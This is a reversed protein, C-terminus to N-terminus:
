APTMVQGNVATYNDNIFELSTGWKVKYSNNSTLNFTQLRDHLYKEM